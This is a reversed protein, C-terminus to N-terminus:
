PPPHPDYQTGPVPPAGSRWAAEAIAVGAIPVTLLQFVIALSLTIATPVNPDHVLVGVLVSVVGLGAAKAAANARTYADPLRLLGVSATAFLVAGLLVLLGAVSDQASM